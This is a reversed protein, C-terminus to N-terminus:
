PAIVATKNLLQLTNAHKLKHQIPLIIMTKAGKHDNHMLFSM